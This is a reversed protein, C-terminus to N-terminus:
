NEPNSRHRTMISTGNEGQLVLNIPEKSSKANGSSFKETRKLKATTARRRSTTGEKLIKVQKESVHVHGDMRINFTRRHNKM